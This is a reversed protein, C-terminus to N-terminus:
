MPGMGGMPMGMGMGGMGGMPGGMGGMGGGMGGGGFPDSAGPPIIIRSPKSPTRPLKALEALDAKAKVSWPSNPWRRPLKGLYYEASAVKGIKKYYAGDKYTKEAEAENIVDLTHYLKESTSTQQIAPDEMTKRIITRAKELGAADFDPGRYGKLRADIAALQADRLLPSKHHDNLFQELYISASEYDNHTMYYQAIGMTADDALPGLPDNQRVHELAKLASGQADIFPLRGDFRGYWPIRKERPAKPDAQAFWLQAIEYERSVLKDMHETAPHEKKLKEYSDHADVFKQRQFQTEALYFLCDEAVPTGKRKKAIRAFEKEAEALKGQEFLTHAANFEAEAAPDKAPKAMPKWGDSGLILTSSKDPDKGSPSKRPTLWRDLLRDSGASGTVDAMEDKSPGKVLNGDYAARWQALPSAFSQCGASCLPLLSLLFILARPAIEHPAPNLFPDPATTRLLRRATRSVTGAVKKV